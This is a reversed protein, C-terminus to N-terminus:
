ETDNATVTVPAPAITFSKEVAEFTYNGSAKVTVTVKKAGANKYDTDPYSVTYESQPITMEGDKVTVSPKQETGDYTFSDATFSVSPESASKAKIAFPITIASLDARTGNFTITATAAGANINNSYTIDYDTGQTLTVGGDTITVDPKIESGTYTQEPISGVSVGYIINCGSPVCANASLSIWDSASGGYYITDLSTCGFFTYEGISTVSNPITISSLNSCYLFARNGINTVGYEIEVPTINSGYLFARDAIAGTGSITLAYATGNRSTDALIYYVNKSNNVNPDGCYGSTAYYPTVNPINASSSNDKLTNWVRKM